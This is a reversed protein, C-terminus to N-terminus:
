PLPPPIATIYDWSFRIQSYKIFYLFKEYFDFNRSFLDPWGFCGSDLTRVFARCYEVSSHMERLRHKVEVVLIVQLSDVRYWFLLQKEILVGDSCTFSLICLWGKASVSGVYMYRCTKLITSVPKSQHFYFYDTYQKVIQKTAEFM